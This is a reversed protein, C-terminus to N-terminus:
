IMWNKNLSKIIKKKTKNKKYRKILLFNQAKMLCIKMQKMVMNLNIIKKKKIWSKRIKKQTTRIIQNM